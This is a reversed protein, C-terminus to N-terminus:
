EIKNLKLRSINLIIKNYKTHITFNNRCTKHGETVQLIRSKYISNHLHSYCGLLKITCSCSLQQWLKFIYSNYSCQQFHNLCLSPDSVWVTWWPTLIGAEPVTAGMVSSCVMELVCGDGLLWWVILWLFLTVFHFSDLHWLQRVDSCRHETICSAWCLIFEM